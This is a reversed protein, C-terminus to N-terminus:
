PMSERVIAWDGVTRYSVLNEGMETNRAEVYAEYDKRSRYTLNVVTFMELDLRCSLSWARGDGVRELTFRSVFPPLAELFAPVLDSLTAPAQGKEEEYRHAAQVVPAIRSVLMRCSLNRALGNFASGLVSAVILACSMALYAKGSSRTRRSVLLVLGLPILAIVLIPVSVLILLMFLWSLSGRGALIAASDLIGTIVFAGLVLAPTWLAFRRAMSPSSLGGRTDATPKKAEVAEESPPAGEDAM